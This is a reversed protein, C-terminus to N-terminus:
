WNLERDLEAFMQEHTLLQVKGDKIEQDRREIEVLWAKEHETHPRLSEILDDILDQREAPPLELAKERLEFLQVGM